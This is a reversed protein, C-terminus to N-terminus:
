IKNILIMKLRTNNGQQRKIDCRCVKKWRNGFLNEGHLQRVFFYLFNKMNYDIDRVLKSM